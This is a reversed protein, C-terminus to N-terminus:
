PVTAATDSIDPVGTRIVGFAQLTKDSEAHQLRSGHQLFSSRKRSNYFQRATTRRSSRISDFTSHAQLGTAPTNTAEALLPSCAGGQEGSKSQLLRACVRHLQWMVLLLAALITVIFVLGVTSDAEHSHGAWGLENWPAVRFKRAASQLYGPMQHQLAEQVFTQSERVPVRLYMSSKCICELMCMYQAALLVAKSPEAMYRQTM